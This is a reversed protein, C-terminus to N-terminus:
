KEGTEVITSRKATNINGKKNMERGPTGIYQSLFRGAKMRGEQCVSPRSRKLRGNGGQVNKEILRESGRDMEVRYVV